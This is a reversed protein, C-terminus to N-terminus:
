DNIRHNLEKPKFNKEEGSDLKATVTLGDGSKAKVTAKQHHYHNFKNDIMVRDGVDIPHGSLSRVNDDM